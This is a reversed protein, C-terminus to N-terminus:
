PAPEGTAKLKKNHAKMLNSQQLPSAMLGTSPVPNSDCAKADASMPITLAIVSACMWRMLNNRKKM